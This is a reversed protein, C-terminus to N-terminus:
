DAENTVGKIDIFFKYAPMDDIKVLTELGRGHSVTIRDMAIGNIMLGALVDDLWAGREKSAQATLAAVSQSRFGDGLFEPYAWESYLRKAMM